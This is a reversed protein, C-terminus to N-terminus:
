NRLTRSGQYTEDVWGPKGSAAIPYYIRGGHYGGGSGEQGNGITIGATNIIAQYAELSLYQPQYTENTQRSLTAVFASLHNYAGSKLYYNNGSM